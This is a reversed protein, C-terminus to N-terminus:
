GGSGSTPRPRSRPSSRAGPAPARTAPSASAAAPRRRPAARGWGAAAAALEVVPAPARTPCTRSGSSWRTPARRRPWSTWSRSSRSCTSTARRALADGVHAAADPDAPPRHGAPQRCTTARARANRTSGAGDAQPPDVPAASRAPEALTTAALLGPAGAYGPRRSHGQSWVDYTWRAIRGAVDVAAAVDAVMASSFPAWGLEDPRSWRVQVPRARCRGPWCCRTSPPTTPPTTATAAPTRSTSSTRRDGPGPRARRRDARALNRHGPQPVLRARRRREWVAVACSPAISAHALFPRSYRRGRPGRGPGRAAARTPPTTPSRSRRTRAPGCTATSTTRTRCRTASRGLRRRGRAARPRVSSRPRTRAPSRRPVLRGPGAHGRSAPAPVTRAPDRRAVAAAAGPRVVPRAAAPRARVPGGPSRTRCTSGPCTPGTYTGGTALPVAADAPVDLDVDAALEAYGAAQGDPGTIRGAVVTVKAPDLDWRRAAAAAFLARVNAAAARLAPGSSSISLSGATLGEDPGEATDAPRM